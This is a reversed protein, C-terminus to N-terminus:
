VPHTVDARVTPSFLIRGQVVINKDRVPDRELVLREVLVVMHDRKSEASLFAIEGVTERLFVLVAVCQEAAFERVVLKARVGFVPELCPQVRMDTAAFHRERERLISYRGIPDREVTFVLAM